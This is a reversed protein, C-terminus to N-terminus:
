LKIFAIGRHEAPSAAESIYASNWGSWSHVKGIKNIKKLYLVVDAKPFRHFCNLITVRTITTVFFIMM